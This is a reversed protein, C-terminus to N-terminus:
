TVRWRPKTIGLVPGPPNARAGITPPTWMSGKISSRPRLTVGNMAPRPFDTFCSSLIRAAVAAFAICNLRPTAVIRRELSM